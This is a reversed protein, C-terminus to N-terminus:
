RCDNSTGDSPYSNTILTVPKPSAQGAENREQLVSLVADSVFKISM